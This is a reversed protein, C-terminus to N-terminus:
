PAGCRPCTRGAYERGCFACPRPVRRVTLGKGAVGVRIMLVAAALGLTVTTTMEPPLPLM